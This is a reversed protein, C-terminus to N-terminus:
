RTCLLGQQGTITSCRQWRYWDRGVRRSGASMAARSPTLQLYASPWPLRPRMKLPQLGQMDEPLWSERTKYSPHPGRSAVRKWLNCGTGLAKEGERSAESKSRGVSGGTSSVM